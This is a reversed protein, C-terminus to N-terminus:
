QCRCGRVLDKADKAGDRWRGPEDAWVVHNGEIRCRYAFVFNDFPRAYTLAVIGDAADQAQVQKPDRDMVAAIATRCITSVEFAPAALASTASTLLMWLALLRVVSSM